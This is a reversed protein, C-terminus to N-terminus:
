SISCTFEGDTCSLVCVDGFVWIFIAPNANLLILGRTFTPQFTWDGSFTADTFIWLYPVLPDQIGIHPGNAPAFLDLLGSWTIYIKKPTPVDGFPKGLGWCITCDDGSTYQDGVPEGM